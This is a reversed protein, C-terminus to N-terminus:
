RRSPPGLRGADGLVISRHRARRTGDSVRHRAQRRCNLKRASDRALRIQTNVSFHFAWDCKMAMPERYSRGALEIGFNGGIFDDDLAFDGAVKVRSVTDLDLVAARDGAVYVCASDADFVASIKPAPCFNFGGSRL